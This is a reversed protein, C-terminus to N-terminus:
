SKQSLRAALAIGQLLCDPMSIGGRYNGALHLGPCQSEARECAAIFRDHGPEYQPIAEPWRTVHHFVPNSNIELLPAIDFLVAATLDRDNLNLIEPDQRGGIFATLLVHNEPARGPFLTSSFLVGLTRVGRARSILAGFGDLPHGVQDRAYGLHVVCMPAQPIDALQGAENSLSAALRAAERAPTAIVLHEAEFTREGSRAV